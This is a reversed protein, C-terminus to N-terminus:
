AWQMAAVHGVQAGTWTAAFSNLAKTIREHQAPAIQPCAVHSAACGPEAMALLGALDGGGSWLQAEFAEVVREAQLLEVIDGGPLGARSASAHGAAKAIKALQDPHRGQAVMGWFGRTLGLGQEVVFHVADHPLPGKKPFRTRAETGDARFIAIRDETRGKTIEIRM